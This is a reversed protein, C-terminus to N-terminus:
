GCNKKRTSRIFIEYSQPDYASQFELLMLFMDTEYNCNILNKM